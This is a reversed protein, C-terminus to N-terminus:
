FNFIVSIFENQLWSIDNVATYADIETGGIPLFKLQLEFFKLLGKIIKAHKLDPFQTSSHNGWIIVKKVSGCDVGCRAAIQGIARNHDLRTM